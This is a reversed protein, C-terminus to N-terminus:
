DHENNGNDYLENAREMVSYADQEYIAQELCRAWFHIEEFDELPVTDSM